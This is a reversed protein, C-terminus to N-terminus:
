CYNIPCFGMKEVIKLVWAVDIRYKCDTEKGYLNLVKLKNKEYNKFKKTLFVCIM